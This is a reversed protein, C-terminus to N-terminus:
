ENKKQEDEQEGKKLVNILWDFFLFQMTKEYQIVLRIQLPKGPVAQEVAREPDTAFASLIM